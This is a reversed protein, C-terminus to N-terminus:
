FYDLTGPCARKKSVWAASFQFATIAFADTEREGRITQSGIELATQDSPLM